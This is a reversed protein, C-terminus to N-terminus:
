QAVAIISGVDTVGSFTLRGSDKDVVYKRLVDAGENQVYAFRGNSSITIGVPQKGADVRQPLASLEGSLPSIRYSSIDNSDANAVYVFKGSSHIAVSVPAKGSAFPSGKVAELRGEHFHISFVSLNNSDQNVVLLFKGSPDVALAVPNEGVAFAPRIDNSGEDAIPYMAPSFMRGHTFVSVTNEKVNAVFSFRAVPDLAIAAAGKAINPPQNQALSLAGSEPDVSFVGYVDILPNVAYLNRGSADIALDTPTFGLRISYEPLHALDGKVPDIRYVAIGNEKNKEGM